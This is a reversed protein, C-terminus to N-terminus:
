QREHFQLCKLVLVKEQEDRLLYLDKIFKTSSISEVNMGPM